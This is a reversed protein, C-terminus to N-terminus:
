RSNRSPGFMHETLDALENQLNYSWVGNSSVIVSFPQADINGNVTAEPEGTGQIVPKLNSVYGDNVPYILRPMIEKTM